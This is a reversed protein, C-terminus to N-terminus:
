LPAPLGFHDATHELLEIITRFCSKLLEQDVKLLSEPRVEPRDEPHAYAVRARQVLALEAAEAARRFLEEHVPVARGLARLRTATDRVGDLAEGLAFVRALDTLPRVACNELDLLETREGESDVVHGRFFTRPPLHAMSDRALLSLFHADSEVVDALSRRIEREVDESGEVRLLDFLGLSDYMRTAVPDHVWADFAQRWEAVTGQTPRGDSAPLVHPALALGLAGLDAGVRSALREMEARQAEPGTWALGLGLPMAGFRERRGAAGLMLWCRETAGPDIQLESEAQRVVRRCIAADLAGAAETVWPAAHHDGLLVEISREALDRLHRIQDLSRARGIRLIPGLPDGGLRFSLDTETVVGGVSPRESSPAVAVASAGTRLMQTWYDGARLGSPLPALPTADPRLLDGLPAEPSVEGTAVRARFEADGVIGLVLGDGDVVMVSSLGLVTMREAVDRISEDRDCRAAECDATESPLVADLWLSSGGLSSLSGPRDEGAHSFVTELYRQARPHKELLPTLLDQPFVYLLVDSATRARYRHRPSSGIGVIDGPGLLDLLGDQEDLLEVTGQQIVAFTSQRDEGADHLVELAEHFRVRGAGALDVLEEEEMWEFPPHRRLFDAVRYRISSAKM